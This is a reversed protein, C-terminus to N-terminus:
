DNRLPLGNQARIENDHKRCITHSQGRVPKEGREKQCYACVGRQTIRGGVGVGPNEFLVNVAVEALQEVHFMKMRTNDAHKAM